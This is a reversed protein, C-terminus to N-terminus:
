EPHGNTLARQIFKVARLDTVMKPTVRIVSWGALAAENYKECDAEFGYGRTHRGGAWTGGEVEIAVKIIPYAFDFRWRREPHFKYERVPPILDHQEIQQFLLNEYNDRV